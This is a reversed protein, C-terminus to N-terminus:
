HKKVRLDRFDANEKTKTFLQERSIDYLSCVNEAIQNFIPEKM